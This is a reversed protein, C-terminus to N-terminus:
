SRRSASAQAASTMSFSHGQGLGAAGRRQLLVCRGDGRREQVELAHTRSPKEVLHQLAGADNCEGLLEPDVHGADVLLQPGREGVGGTLPLEVHGLHHPDTVSGSRSLAASSASNSCDVQGTTGRRTGMALTQASTSDNM